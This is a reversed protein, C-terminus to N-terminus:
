AAVRGAPTLRYKRVSEIAIDQHTSLIVAGGKRSHELMCQELFAVGQKDIATYPEDLYWVPSDSLLLRALGVRRHQGASLTYCPVDEYGALGVRVLVEAIQQRSWRGSTFGFRLNEEPTLVRKVAPQHALYLVNSLYEDGCERIPTGRYRIEGECPHLTGTLLRFITTKGSGNPGELQLIDGAQVDFSVNQFLRADDREFALRSVSVLANISM